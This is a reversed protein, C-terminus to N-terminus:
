FDLQVGFLVTKGQPYYGTDIGYAKNNNTSFEPDFGEYKTFTLLNQASVYLRCNAILAKSSWTKPLTFGVSINKLRLYSGDEVFWSSIRGENHNPDTASLRFNKNSSGAETWRNLAYATTNYDLTFTHTKVRFDNYIENGEVGQFLMSFDFRGYNVNMTIGYTFDPWPNGIDAIDYSDVHGDPVGDKGSIDKFILDGPATGTEQYAPWGNDQAKQNYAAVEEPTQFIGETRYGFFTSMPMGKQTYAVNGGTVAGGILITNDEDTALVENKVFGLNANVSYGFDKGIKNRYTLEFDCGTNRIKGVNITQTVKTAANKGMGAMGPLSSEFLADTTNKVYWDFSFLLTNKLLGIDVGIDTTAIEEWKIDKNPLYSLRVGQAYNQDGGMDAAGWAYNANDSVYVSTYLFQPIGSNGLIGWSARLKLGSLWDFHANKRIFAEDGVKWAGSVSPFNGWRHNPGFRDYGDRRMLLMLLYRDKFAYNVRGFFSLSANNSYSDEIQRFAQDALSIYYLDGLMNSASANLTTGKSHKGETGLMATLDHRGFTQHYNAVVQHGLSYTRDLKQSVQSYLRSKAEYYQFQGNESRDDGAGFGGTLRATLSLEKLPQIKIYMNGTTNFSSQLRHVTLEDALVNSGDYVALMRKIDTYEDPFNKPHELTPFILPHGNEDRNKFYGFGGPQNYEDYPMMFPLTRMYNNLFNGNAEPNTRTYSTQLSEGFTLWKNIKIDSNLRFSYRKFDTDVYMGKDNYYNFSAYYNYDNTGKSFSLDYNQTVGQSFLIDRWNYDDNTYDFDLGYARIDKATYASPYALLEAETMKGQGNFDELRLEKLQRTNLMKPLNTPTNFGWYSNFSMKASDKGRKTTVIIV